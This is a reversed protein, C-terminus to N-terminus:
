GFLYRAFHDCNPATLSVQPKAIKPYRPIIASFTKLISGQILSTASQRTSNREIGSSSSKNGLSATAGAGNSKTFNTSRNRTSANSNVNDAAADHPDEADDDDHRQFQRRFRASKTIKVIIFINLVQFLEIFVKTSIVCHSWIQRFKM